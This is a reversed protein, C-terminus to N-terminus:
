EEKNTQKIIQNVYISLGAVLIGQVIATFIAMVIDQPTNFVSTAFVYMACIVIGIGGLILPIYKDKVAQAQKLAMGSFYLAIAVVILEPKVYNAIQEM